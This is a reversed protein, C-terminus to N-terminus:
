SCDIAIVTLFQLITARQFLYSTGALEAILAKQYFVIVIKHTPGTGCNKFNLQM